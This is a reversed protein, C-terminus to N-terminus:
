ENLFEELFQESERINEMLKLASNIAEDIDVGQEIYADLFESFIGYRDNDEFIWEIIRDRAGM